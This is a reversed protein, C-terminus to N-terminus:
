KRGRYIKGAAFGGCIVSLLGTIGFISFFSVYDSADFYFIGLFMLVIWGFGMWRYAAPVLNINDNKFAYSLLVCPISGIIAPVIVQMVYRLQTSSGPFLNELPDILLFYSFFYIVIFLLSLCFSYLLTASKPKGEETLFLVSCIYDIKKSLKSQNSAM